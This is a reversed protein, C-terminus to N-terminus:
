RINGINSATVAAKVDVCLCSEVLWMLDVVNKNTIRILITMEQETFLYKLCCNSKREVNKYPFM